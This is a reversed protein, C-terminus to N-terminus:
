WYWQRVIHFFGQRNQSLPCLVTLILRCVVLPSVLLGGKKATLLYCDGCGVNIACLEVPFEAPLKAPLEVPLEAPLVAPVKAPLLEASVQPEARAMEAISPM